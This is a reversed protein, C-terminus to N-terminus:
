KGSRNRPKTKSLVKMFPSDFNYNYNEEADITLGIVLYMQETTLSEKAPDKINFCERKIRDLHKNIEARTAEEQEPTQPYRKGRKKNIFIFL